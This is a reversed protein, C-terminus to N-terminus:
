EVTFDITHWGSAGNPVPDAREETQQEGDGDTARVSVTHDGPAADEWRLSWQVWTDATVEAGLEAEHWDGDDIRVEVAAIGRQQAWATGGLMVSGDSAPDLTGFSRPVDVRSAIKIPGRESWGRDTWYATEEAFRTVTLETLWKTTSVYG